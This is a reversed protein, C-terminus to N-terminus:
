KKITFSGIKFVGIYNGKVDIVNTAPKINSVKYREYVVKDIIFAPTIDDGMQETTISLENKLALDFIAEISGGSQLAIDAISQRDRIEM